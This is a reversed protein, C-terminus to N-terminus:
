EFTLHKISDLERQYDVRDLVFQEYDQISKFQNLIMEKSIFSKMESLYHTYSSWPYKGLGEFNILYATVPNLHIYRSVHILQEDSEIRVAKFMPQFLTGVRNTKTNFYKAYSDQFIRMFRSIGNEKLNKLLFHIHNPMLCFCLIEVLAEHKEELTKMFNAKEEKSLRNYFSFRLRPKEYHYFNFTELARQYDRSSLFIPLKAISRNFVHYIENPAIIIKRYPM